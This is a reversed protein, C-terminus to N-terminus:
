TFSVGTRRPTVCAANEMDSGVVRLSYVSMMAITYKPMTYNAVSRDCTCAFNRGHCVLDCSYLM